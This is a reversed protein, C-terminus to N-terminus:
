WTTTSYPNPQMIGTKKLIGLEVTAPADVPTITPADVPATTPANVLTTTPADVLATTPADVSTTTPADVPATTPGDVPTPAPANVSSATSSTTTQISDRPNNEKCTITEHTTTNPYIPPEAIHGTPTAIKSVADMPAVQNLETMTQGVPQNVMMAVVQDVATMQEMVMTTVTLIEMDSTGTVVLEVNPMSIVPAVIM